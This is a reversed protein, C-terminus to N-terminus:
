CVYLDLFQVLRIAGDFSGPRFRFAKGVTDIGILSTMDWKRQGMDACILDGEGERQLAVDIQHSSLLPHDEGLMSGSIDIGVWHHGASTIIDGSM